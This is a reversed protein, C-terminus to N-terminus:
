KHYNELIQIRLSHNQNLLKTNIIFDSRKNLENRNDDVQLFKSQLLVVSTSMTRVTYSLWTFYAIILAIIIKTINDKLSM